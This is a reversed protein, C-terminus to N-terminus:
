FYRRYMKINCVGATTHGMQTQIKYHPGYTILSNRNLYYKTHSPLTTKKIILIFYVGNALPSIRLVTIVLWTQEYMRTFTVIELYFTTWPRPRNLVPAIPATASAVKFFLSNVDAIKSKRFVTANIAPLFFGAVWFRKIRKEMSIFGLFHNWLHSLM